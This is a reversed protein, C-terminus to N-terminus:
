LFGQSLTLAPFNALTRQLFTPLMCRKQGDGFTKALPPSHSAGSRPPLPFPDPFPLSRGGYRLLSSPASPFFLELIRTSLPSASRRFSQDLFFVSPVTGDLSHFLESTGVSIFGDAPSDLPGHLKSTVGQCFLLPVPFSAPPFPIRQPNTKLFRPTLEDKPPFPPPPRFFSLPLDV